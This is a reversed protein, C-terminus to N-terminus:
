SFSKCQVLVSIKRKEVGEPATSSAGGGGKEGAEGFKEDVAVKKRKELRPLEWGGILDIGGDGAGGIRRLTLGPFSQQLSSQATYEFLTGRLTPSRKSPPPLPTVLTSLFSELTQPRIRPPM